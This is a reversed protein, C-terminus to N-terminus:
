KPVRVVSYAAREPNVVGLRANVAYLLGTTSNV